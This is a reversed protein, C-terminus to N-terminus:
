LLPRWQHLTCRCAPLSVQNLLVRFTKLLWTSPMNSVGGCIKKERPANRGHRGYIDLVVKNARDGIAHVCLQTDNDMALGAIKRVEYIDTTNQGTFGPKDNYPKLLWAGFASLAGDVESKIANCTFIPIRIQIQSGRGEHNRLKGRWPGFPNLDLEGKYQWKRYRALEEFTSGADQFSTHHWQWGNRSRGPHLPPRGNEKKQKPAGSAKETNKMPQESWTWQEKKLVGIAEGRKNRVIRGGESWPHGQRHGYNWPKENPLCLTDAPM